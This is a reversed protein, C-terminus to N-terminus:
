FLFDAGLNDLLLNHLTKVGLLSHHMLLCFRYHMNFGCAYMVFSMLSAQLMDFVLCILAGQRKKRLDVNHARAQLHVVGFTVDAHDVLLGLLTFEDDPM